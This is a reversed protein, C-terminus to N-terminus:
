KKVGKKVGTIMQMVLGADYGSVQGNGSVDALEKQEASLQIQGVVYQMILQADHATVQGDMSVDGKQYVPPPPEEFFSTLIINGATLPRTKADPWLTVKKSKTELQIDLMSIYARDEVPVVASFPHYALDRQWLIEFPNFIVAFVKKFTWCTFYMIDGGISLHIDDNVSIANDTLLQGTKPDLCYVIGEIKGPEKAFLGYSYLASDKYVSPCSTLGIERAWLIKDHAKVNIAYLFGTEGPKPETDQFDYRWNNKLILVDEALVIAFPNGLYTLGAPDKPGPFQSFHWLYEAAAINFAVINCAFDFCYFIGDNAIGSTAVFEPPEQELKIKSIGLRAIKPAKSKSAIEIDDYLFVAYPSGYGIAM